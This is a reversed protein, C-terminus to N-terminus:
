DSLIVKSMTIKPKYKEVLKKKWKRDAEEKHTCFGCPPGKGPSLDELDTLFNTVRYQGELRDLEEFDKRLAEPLSSIDLGEEFVVQFILSIM